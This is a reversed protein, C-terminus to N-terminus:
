GRCRPVPGAASDRRKGLFGMWGRRMFVERERSKGMHIGEARTLSNRWPRLVGDNMRRTLMTGERSEKKKRNLKMMLGRSPSGKMLGSPHWIMKQTVMTTARSKMMGSLAEVEMLFSSSVRFLSSSSSVLCLAPRMTSPFHIDKMAWDRSIAKIERGKKRM